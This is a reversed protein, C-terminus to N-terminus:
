HDSDPNRGEVRKLHVEIDGNRVSIGKVRIERTVVDEARKLDMMQAVYEDCAKKTHTARGHITTFDFSCDEDLKEEDTDELLPKLSNASDILDQLVCYLNKLEGFLTIGSEQNVQTLPRDGM